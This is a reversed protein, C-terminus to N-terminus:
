ARGRGRGVFTRVLVHRFHFCSVRDYKRVRFARLSVALVNEATIPLATSTRPDFFFCSLFSTMVHKTPDDSSCM